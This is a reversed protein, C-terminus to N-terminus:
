NNSVSEKIAELWGQGFEFDPEVYNGEGWENWSKLFVIRHEEQKDKIINIAKLIHQKFKEPTANVYVGDFSAVRPTRDWQPMITPYVNEWSDEPAFFNNVTRAYDYRIKGAPLRVHRLAVKTLNRIIGEYLM